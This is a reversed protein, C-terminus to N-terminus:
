YDSNRQKFDNDENDIVLYKIFLGQGFGEGKKVIWDKDGENQLRFWMHGENDKNNYYDKDIVGVQNCVRVNYKFGMSSRDLLLLCDDDMMDVKIGTPIKKIEGPKLVFDFLAYFDYGAAYKTERKPLSYEDYLKRDGSIDKSFQEFSIKEFRRM